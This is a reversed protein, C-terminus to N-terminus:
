SYWLVFDEFNLGKRDAGCVHFWGKYSLLKTIETNKTIDYREKILESIEGGDVVGDGNTDLHKFKQWLHRVADLSMHHTRSVRVLEAFDKEDIRAGHTGIGMCMDRTGNFMISTDSEQAKQEEQRQGCNHCCTGIAVSAFGCRSCSADSSSDLMHIANHMADPTQHLVFSQSSQGHGIEGNQGHLYHVLRSCALDLNRAVRSLFDGFFDRTIGHTYTCGSDTQNRMTAHYASETNVILQRVTQRKRCPIKQVVEQLTVHFKQLDAKRMTIRSVAFIEFMEDFLHREFRPGGCHLCYRADPCDKFSEGCDICESLLTQCLGGHSSSGREESPPRGAAKKSSGRSSSGKHTNGHRCFIDPANLTRETQSTSDHALPSIVGFATTHRRPAKQPKDRPHQQYSSLEAHLSSTCKNVVLPTGRFLALPESPTATSQEGKLNFGNDITVHRRGRRQFSLSSPRKSDSSNLGPASQPPRAPLYHSEMAPEVPQDLSDTKIQQTKAREAMAQVPALLDIVFNKSTTRRGSRHTAM